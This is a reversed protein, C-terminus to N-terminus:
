YRQEGQEPHDLVAQLDRDRASRQTRADPSEDVEGVGVPMLYTEWIVASSYPGDGDGDRQPSDFVVMFERVSGDARRPWDSPVAGPSVVRFPKGLVPEITGTPEAPWPGNWRSDRLVKVRMGPRLADAREDLDSVGVDEALQRARMIGSRSCKHSPSGRRRMYAM